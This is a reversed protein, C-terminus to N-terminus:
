STEVYAKTLLACAVFRARKVRIRFRYLADIAAASPQCKRVDVSM